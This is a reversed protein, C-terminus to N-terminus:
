ALSPRASNTAAAQPISQDSSFDLQIDPLIASASMSSTDSSLETLRSSTSDSVAEVNDIQFEHLRYGDTLNTELRGGILGFPQVDATLAAWKAKDALVAADGDHSAPNLRTSAQEANVREFLSKPASKEVPQDEGGETKAPTPMAFESLGAYLSVIM